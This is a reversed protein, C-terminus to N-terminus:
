FTFSLGIAAFDINTIKQVGVYRTWTVDINIRKVPNFGLGMAVVPMVRNTKSNIKTVNQYIVAGGGKIFASFNHGLETIAKFLFDYGYLKASNQNVLWVYSGEIAFNDNIRWGAYPRLGKWGDKINSDHSNAYGYQFGLYPGHESLNAFSINSVGFLVLFVILVFKNM